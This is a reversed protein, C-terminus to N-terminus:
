DTMDSTPMTETDDCTGLSTSEDKLSLAPFVLGLRADQGPWRNEWIHGMVCCKVELLLWDSLILYSWIEDDGNSTMHVFMLVFSM